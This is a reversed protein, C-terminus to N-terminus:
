WSRYYLVISRTSLEGGSTNIMNILEYSNCSVGGSVRIVTETDTFSSAVATLGAPVTWSSSSIIDGTNLWESWDITYDNSSGPPKVFVQLLRTM